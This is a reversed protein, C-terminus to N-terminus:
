SVIQVYEPVNWVGIEERKTSLSAVFHGDGGLNAILDYGGTTDDCENTKTVANLIDLYPTSISDFDQIWKKCIADNEVASESDFKSTLHHKFLPYFQDADYNIPQIFIELFRQLIDLHKFKARSAGDILYIDNLICQVCKTAKLKTQIWDLDTLYLSHPYTSPDVIFAHYPLENFKQQNFWQYKQKSDVHENPQSKYFQYLINHARKIDDAYRTIAVNKLRNDMFRVRNIQLLIPGRGMIWSIKTWLKEVKTDDVLKSQKLLENIETERLGDRSAILLSVLYKIIAEGFKTELTQYMKNSTSTLSTDSLNYEGLWAFWWFLQVFHFIMNLLNSLINIIEVIKCASVKAQLPIKEDCQKWSDPLQLQPNVSFFDGGGHSLVENWKQDSFQNLHAFNSKSIRDKLHWLVADTKECKDIHDVKANTTATTIIVKIKDNLKTPLWSLDDLELADDLSDILIVVQYKSADICERLTSAYSELTQWFQSFFKSFNM